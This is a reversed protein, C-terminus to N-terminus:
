APKRSKPKNSPRSTGRRATACTGPRSKTSHAARPQWPSCPCRPPTDWGRVDYGGDYVPNMLPHERSALVFRIGREVAERRAQDEDWGATHLLTECVIATGG